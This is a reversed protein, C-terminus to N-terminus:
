KGESPQAFMVNKDFWKKLVLFRDTPTISIPHRDHNFPLDAHEVSWGLYERFAHYTWDWGYEEFISTCDELYQAAGPAWRAVSFEGVYIPVNYALQFQRVPELYRRLAEKDVLKGDIVGPYTIGNELNKDKAVGLNSRVGQHTFAGPWYMHVQYIVHPVDIPQLWEFAYPFDWQAVEVIVPTTADIARIAKAAKVQIGLWDQLGVPSLGDQVPENVLDYAWLAPHDKFRKAIGEWLAIFQEQYRRETLMRLSSDPTRGGPALHLDVVIKIGNDRAADLVKALENLKYELWQDYNEVNKAEGNLQWRVLNVNWVTLDVFDQKHFAMPSMVGRMLTTKHSLNKEADLAIVRALKPQLVTIKVHSIWVKGLAGEIGLRLQAGSDDGSLTDIGCVERAAFSGHLNGEGIWRGGQSPSKLALQCKAGCSSPLPLAPNTGQINEGRIIGSIAVEAGQLASVNLPLSVLKGLSGKEVPPATIRICPGGEPGENVIDAGQAQLQARVKPDGLDLTYFVDGVKWEQDAGRAIAVVASSLLVSLLTLKRLFNM